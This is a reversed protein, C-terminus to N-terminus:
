RGEHAARGQLQDPGRHGLPQGAHGRHDLDLHGEGHGPGGVPDGGLAAALEALAAESGRARGRCAVAGQERRDGHPGRGGARPAPRVVGGQLIQEARGEAPRQEPAVAAPLWELLELGDSPPNSHEQGRRGPGPHSTPMANSSTLSRRTWKSVSSPTTLATSPTLKERSGPWVRPITPSDPEPLLTVLRAMMPRALPPRVEPTTRNSPRSRSLICMESSRSIRPLLIAM